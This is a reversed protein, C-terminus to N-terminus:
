ASEGGIRNCELFADLDRVDYVAKGGIRYYPISPHGICAWKNLTNPMVGLYDAAEKRSLKRRIEARRKAARRKSM